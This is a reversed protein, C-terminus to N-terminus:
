DICIKRGCQLGNISGLKMWDLTLLEEDLRRERRFDCVMKNKSVWWDLVM